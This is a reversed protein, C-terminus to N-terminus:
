DRGAPAPWVLCFATGEADSQVTVQGGHAALIAQTISLGLGTGESAPQRRSKDVRYFRDFLRPLEEAAIPEGSNRM